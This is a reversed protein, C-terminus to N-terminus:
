LLGLITKSLKSQIWEPKKITRNTLKDMDMEGVQILDTIPSVFGVFDTTQRKLATVSPFHPEGSNCLLIHIYCHFLIPVISCEFSLYVNLM